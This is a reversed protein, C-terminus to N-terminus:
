PIGLSKTLMSSILLQDRGDENSRKKLLQKTNVPSNM